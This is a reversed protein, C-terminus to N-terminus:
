PSVGPVPSISLAHHGDNARTVIAKIWEGPAFTRTVQTTNDIHLSVEKGDSRKVVYHDGELRLVQGQMTMGKRTDPDQKNLGPLSGKRESNQQAKIEDTALSNEIALAANSLGLGLFFACSLFNVVKPVEVM